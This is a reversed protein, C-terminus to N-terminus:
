LQPFAYSTVTDPGDHTVPGDLVFRDGAEGTEPDAEREVLSLVLRDGRWEWKGTWDPSSFVGDPLFQWNSADKCGDGGFAWQGALEPMGPPTEAMLLLALLASM